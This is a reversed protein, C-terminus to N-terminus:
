PRVGYESDVRSATGCRGNRSDAIAPALRNRRSWPDELGALARPLRNRNLLRWLTALLISLDTWFSREAFYRMQLETKIPLIIIEYALDPDDFGKLVAGEDANWISAWDTIGPRLELIRRAMGELGQTYAKVEPRPGVLSMQGLFVNIFQPLEDIKYKRLVRGIRTIRPDDDGTSFGGRQEADVVMTRFKFIRFPKGYRGVREGRYFVPGPSDRKIMIGIMAFVPLLPILVISSVIFDFLRKLM